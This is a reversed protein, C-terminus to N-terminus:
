NSLNIPHSLSYESRSNEITGMDMDMNIDIGMEVAMAM